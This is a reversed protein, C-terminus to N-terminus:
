RMWAPLRDVVGAAQALHRLDDDPVQNPFDDSGRNAARAQLYASTAKEIACALGIADDFDSAAVFLGHNAWVVAAHRQMLAATAQAIEPGGPTMWPVVGVGEPFMTIGEPFVGWLARTFARSDQSMLATAALVSVPHAHYMVRCAGQAGGGISAGQTAASSGAAGVGNAVDARGASSAGGASYAGGASSIADAGGVSGVEGAGHAVDAGRTAGAGDAVGAGGAAGADHTAAMRAACMLLHSPLESTPRGGDALGWVVRYAMGASDVEVIGCASKPDDAVRSLYKGTGTVLFFAGALSPVAVGLSQWEGAEGDFFRRATEVNESTLRYSLNGGNREHWGQAVGETCLRVFGRVFGLKEMAADSVAGRAASAGRALMEQAQDIFAM